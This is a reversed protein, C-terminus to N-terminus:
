DDTMGNASPTNTAADGLFNDVLPGILASAADLIQDVPRLRRRTADNILVEVQERGHKTALRMTAQHVESKNWDDPELSVTHIGQPELEALLGPALVLFGQRGIDSTAIWILGDTTICLDPPQSM